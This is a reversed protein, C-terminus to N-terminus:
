RFKNIGKVKVELNDLPIIFGLYQIATKLPAHTEDEFDTKQLITMMQNTIEELNQYDSADM